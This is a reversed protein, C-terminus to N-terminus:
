IKFNSIADKGEAKKTLSKMMELNNDIFQNLKRVAEAEGYAQTYPLLVDDISGYTKPNPWEVMALLYPSIVEKWGPTAVVAAVKQAQSLLESEDKTLNDINAKM